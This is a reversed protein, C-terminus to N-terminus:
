KHGYTDNVEAIVEELSENSITAVHIRHQKVMEHFKDDAFWVFGYHDWAPHTFYNDGARLASEAGDKLIHDFNSYMDGLDELGDPLTLKETM